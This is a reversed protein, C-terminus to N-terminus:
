YTRLDTLQPPSPPPELGKEREPATHFIHPDPTRLHLVYSHGVVINSPVASRAHAMRTCMAEMYTIIMDIHTCRLAVYTLMVDVSTCMIDISSLTREISHM